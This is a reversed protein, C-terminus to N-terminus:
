KSNMKDSIESPSYLVDTKLRQEEIEKRVEARVYKCLLQFTKELREEFLPGKIVTIKM